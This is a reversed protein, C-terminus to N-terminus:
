RRGEGPDCDPAPRFGYKELLARAGLPAPCEFLWSAEVADGRRVTVRGMGSASLLEAPLDQAPLTPLELHLARLQALNAAIQANLQDARVMDHQAMAAEWRLHLDQNEALLSYTQGARDLFAASM